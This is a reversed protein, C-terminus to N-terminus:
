KKEEYPVKGSREDNRRKTLIEPFNRFAMIVLVGFFRPIKPSFAGVWFELFERFIAPKLSVMEGFNGPKKQLVARSRLHFRGGRTRFLRPLRPLMGTEVNGYYQIICRKWLFEFIKCKIGNGM